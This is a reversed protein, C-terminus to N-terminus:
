YTRCTCRGTLIRKSSMQNLSLHILMKRVYLYLFNELIVALNTQTQRSEGRSPNLCLHFCRFKNFYVSTPSLFFKHLTEM